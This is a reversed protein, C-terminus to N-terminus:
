IRQIWITSGLLADRLKVGLLYTSSTTTGCHHFRASGSVRGSAQLRSYGGAKFGSKVLKALYKETAAIFIPKTEENYATLEEYREATRINIGAQELTKTKLKADVTDHLETRTGQAKDLERSLEGIRIVARLRIESM